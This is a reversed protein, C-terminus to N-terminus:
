FGTITKRIRSSTRAYAQRAVKAVEPLLARRYIEVAELKNAEFAPRMFPKAPVAQVSKGFFGKLPTGLVGAARNIAARGFEIFRWYWAKSRVGIFRSEYTRTSARNRYSYIARKLNGKFSDPQVPGVFGRPKRSPAHARADRVIPSAAKTLARQSAKGQLAEPLTKLLTQRLETLGSVEVKDPM